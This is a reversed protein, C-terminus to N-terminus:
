RHPAPRATLGHRAAIDRLVGSRTLCEVAANLTDVDRAQLSTKSLLLHIPDENVPACRGAEGSRM